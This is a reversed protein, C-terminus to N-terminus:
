LKHRGCNAPIIHGPDKNDLGGGIQPRERNDFRPAASAGDLDTEKSRVDTPIKAADQTGSPHLQIKGTLDLSEAPDGSRSSVGLKLPHHANLSM